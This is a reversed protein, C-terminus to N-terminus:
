EEIDAGRPLQQEVQEPTIFQTASEFSSPGPLDANVKWGVGFWRFQEHARQVAAHRDADGDVVEDAYM